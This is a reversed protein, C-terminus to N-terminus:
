LKGSLGERVSRFDTVLADTSRKFADLPDGESVTLMIEPIELEPHVDTFEVDMVKDDQLLRDLVPSIITMDPDKVGVKITTATKEILQLEM